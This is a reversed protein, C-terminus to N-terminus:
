MYFSSNWWSGSDKVLLSNCLWTNWSQRVGQEEKVSCIIKLCKCPLQMIYKEMYIKSHCFFLLEVTKLSEMAARHRQIGGWMSFPHHPGINYETTHENPPPSLPRAQLRLLSSPKASFWVFVNEVSCSCPEACLGPWVAVTFIFVRKGWVPAQQNDIGTGVQKMGTWDQKFWQSSLRHDFQEVEQCHGELVLGMDGM